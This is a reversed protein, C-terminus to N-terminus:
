KSRVESLGGVISGFVAMVESHCVKMMRRVSNIDQSSATNVQSNDPTGWQLALKNLL